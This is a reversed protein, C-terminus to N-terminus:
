YRLVCLNVMIFIIEQSHPDRAELWKGFHFHKGRLLLFWISESTSGMKPRDSTTIVQM